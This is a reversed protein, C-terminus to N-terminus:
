RKGKSMRDLFALEEESLSERGQASVKALLRDLRKEDRNRPLFDDFFGAVLQPRGILVAGAIAGGIHAAHGGANPAGDLLYYMEAGFLLAAAVWLPMPIIFFLDVRDRPAVIASAALVGFVGASAGILPTYIDQVLFPTGIGTLWGALNLVLYLAAGAMGCALYFGLYTRRSRLREEIVPGFFFLGLCNFGLHVIDAHLFQFMVLRWVELEVFGKGTSFYGVGALPPYRLFRSEGIIPYVEQGQVSLPIGERGDPMVRSVAAGSAQRTRGIPVATSSDVIPHMLWQRPQSAPREFAEVVVRNGPAVDNFGPATLVGMRAEIGWGGMALLADIVFVGVCVAIIWSTVSWRRPSFRAGDFRNPRREKIYDRDAVGM